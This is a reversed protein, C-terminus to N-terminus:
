RFVFLVIAFYTFLGWLGFYASVLALVFFAGLMCFIEVHAQRKPLRYLRDLEAKIDSQLLRSRVHASVQFVTKKMSYVLTPRDTM